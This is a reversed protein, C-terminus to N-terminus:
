WMVIPAAAKTFGPLGTCSATQTKPDWVYNGGFPDKDKIFQPAFDEFTQPVKGNNEAKYSEAQSEIHGFIRKLELLAEGRSVILEFKNNPDVKNSTSRLITCDPWVIYGPMSQKLFSYPSPPLREWKKVSMEIIKDIDGPKIGSKDSAARINETIAYIMGFDPLEAGAFAGADDLEEISPWKGHEDHYKRVVPEIVSRIWGDCARFMNLRFLNINHQDIKNGAEPGSAAIIAELYHRLSYEYAARFRGEKMNFFPIFRQVYIPAEPDFLALRTYYKAMEVDNDEWFANYAAEFPIRFQGPNNQFEKQVIEDMYDFRKAKDTVAMMALSYTEVFHPDLDSIVRFYQMMQNVNEPTTWGAAYSQIMRLWLFHAAFQDYGCTVAKVYKSNPLYLTDRYLSHSVKFKYIHEDQILVAPTVTATFIVAAVLFTWWRESM